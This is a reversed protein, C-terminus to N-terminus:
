YVIYLIVQSDCLLVDAHEFHLLLLLISCIFYSLAVSARLSSCHSGILNLIMYLNSVSTYLNSFPFAGFYRWSRNCLYWGPLSPIHGPLAGPIVSATGLVLHLVNASLLKLTPPGFNHFLRGCWILAILLRSEKLCFTLGMQKILCKVLWFDSLNLKIYQTKIM